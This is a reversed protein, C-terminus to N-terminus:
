RLTSIARIQTLAGTTKWTKGQDLSRLLGTETGAFIIEGDDSPAPITYLLRIALNASIGSDPQHITDISNWRQQESRQFLGQETGAFYNGQATTTLSLVNLNTLGQNDRQWRDSRRFLGGVQHLEVRPRKGTVILNQRAQLGPVFRDLFISDSGIPDQFQEITSRSNQNLSLPFNAFSLSESQALVITTQPRFQDLQQPTKLIIRSVQSELTFGRAIATNVTAAQVPQFQDQTLCVLWSNPLIQPYVADLDIFQDNSIEPTARKGSRTWDTATFGAFRTGAVLSNQAVTLSTVETAITGADIETWHDGADQTAFVKGEIIAAFLATGRVTLATISQILLTQQWTEAEDPSRYVGNSKTGAFLYVVGDITLTALSIIAQPLNKLEWTNGHDRSRFIGQDTGAYLSLSDSAAIAILARVSATELGRAYWNQGQDSSRYVGNDTGVFLFSRESTTFTTPTSESLQPTVKLETESPIATITYSEDAITIKEGIAVESRFREGRIISENSDISAITGTISDVAYALISRVVTNPIGTNITEIQTTGTPQVRINGIGIATWTEGNDKSRFIGGGPSGAFVSELHYYLVTIALNSLGITSAQWSAGHDLSRYIGRTSTGAFLANESATLCWIDITPLGSSIAIWHNDLLRFCGGQIPSYDRKIEDPLTDWKPAINGFLGVRQRFAFLRPRRPSGVGLTQAEWTIRTQQQATLLEVATLKLLYQYEPADEDILLLRDGSQLQLNLGQLYLQNTKSTITQPRSLRPALVNWDAHAILPENTEFIQSQENEGPISAIATGAAVTVMKPATTEVTFVLYTSAAVGPDLECGITRSLELLSRRETATRWFGENAIREQYFTLVDIVMAWADILAITLDDRDRTKLAALTIRDPILPVYLSELVRQKATTYDSIRYALASLGPSNWNASSSDNM